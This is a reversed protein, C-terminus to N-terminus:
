MHIKRLGDRLHDAVTAPSLNMTTAAQAPDHDGFLVLAVVARQDATLTPVPDSPGYADDPRARHRALAFREDTALRGLCRHYVSRALLVRTVDRAAPQDAFLCVAAITESVVEDAADDDDLVLSALLALAGAHRHCLELGFTQQPTLREHVAPQLDDVTMAYGPRETLHVNAPRRPRSCRVSV